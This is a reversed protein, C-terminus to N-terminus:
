CLIFFINLSGNARDSLHDATELTLMVHYIFIEEAIQLEKDSLKPCRKRLFSLKKHYHFESQGIIKEAMINVERELSSSYSLYESKSFPLPKQLDPLKEM